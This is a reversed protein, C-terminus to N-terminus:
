SGQPFAVEGSREALWPFQAILAEVYARTYRPVDERRVHSWEPVELERMAPYDEFHVGFAGTERLLPEWTTKRPFGRLESEYYLGASPARVFAVEVGRARLKAVDRKSQDIARQQADPPTGEGSFPGWVWRAHERLREDTAIRDWLYYQRDEHVQWIKWVDRQPGRIGERDALPVARDILNGLAYGRDLFAFAPQLLREIRHGLREAPTEDMWYKTLGSFEPIGPWDGFYLDPTVGVVLLDPRFGEDNAFDELFQRPNTGPLALQIPRRGTLAEWTALDTDFLIRSSGIIVVGDYSGAAIKRREVAWHSKSDDIDATTLGLSRMRWEWAAMAAVVLALALWGIAAWRTGPVERVTVDDQEHHESM